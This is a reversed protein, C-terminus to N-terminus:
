SHAALSPLSSNTQSCVERAEAQAAPARPARSPAPAPAPSLAMPNPHYSRGPPAPAPAPARSYIELKESAQTASLPIEAPPSPLYGLLRSTGARELGNWCPLAGSCAPPHCLLPPVQQLRSGLADDAPGLNACIEELERPFLRLGQSGALM